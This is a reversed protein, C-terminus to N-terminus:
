VTRIREMEDNYNKPDLQDFPFQNGLTDRKTKHVKKITKITAFVENNEVALDTCDITGCDYFDNSAPSPFMPRVAYDKEWHGVRDWLAEAQRIKNVAPQIERHIHEWLNWKAIYARITRQVIPRTALLPNLTESAQREARNM